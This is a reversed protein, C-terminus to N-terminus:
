KLALVPNSPTYNFLVQDQINPRVRNDLQVRHAPPFGTIVTMSLKIVPVRYEWLHSTVILNPQLGTPDLSRGPDIMAVLPVRLNLLGLSQVRIRPVPNEPM